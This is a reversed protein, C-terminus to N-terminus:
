AAARGQHFLSLMSDPHISLLTGRIHIQTEDFPTFVHKRIKDIDELAIYLANVGENRAAHGSTGRAIADIVLLGRESTAAKM